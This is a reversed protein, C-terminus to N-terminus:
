WSKVTGITRFNVLYLGIATSISERECVGDSVQVPFSQGKRNKAVVFSDAEQADKSSKKSRSPHPSAHPKAKSGRKKKKGMEVFITSEASKRGM